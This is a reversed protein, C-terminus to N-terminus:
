KTGGAWWVKDKFINISSNAKAINPNADMDSKGYIFRQPFGYNALANAPSDLIIFHNGMAELRRYDNYAEISEQEYFALYKQIMIEQLPNAAYKSAINATYYTLADTASLGINVFAGSIADKLAIEANVLDNKRAYAEALLFKLEHYSMMLTPETSSLLGSIGYKKQVADPTGNPAFVLSTVAPDPYKVFFKAARPDNRASLKKNLSNSAGFYDRDTFFAYNPSIATSGDYKKYSFSESANAFSLNVNAIVADWNPTKFALRAAYRAKLGYAAKLWKPASGGYIFDQNGLSPFTSIAKLNIIADDLMKNIAVYIEQQKDVKPTFIVGPQCAETWPVDGFLDTLLALNYASLVQAIGMTSVNGAESGGVSCKNIVTKLDKLNSYLQGWVNDYTSTITADKRNEAALMQGYIGVNHEIYVSSYFNLDAGTCSFATSTMVDTIIYKSAVDEPNNPNVNIKDMTNESCSFFLLSFILVAGTLLINSKM